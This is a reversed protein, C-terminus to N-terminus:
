GRQWLKQSSGQGTLMSGGEIYYSVQSASGDEYALSLVKGATNWTGREGPGAASYDSSGEWNGGSDRHTMSASASGKEAFKGDPMFVRTRRTTGSFGGSFYTHSYTWRGVLRPDHQGDGTADPGAAEEPPRDVVGAPPVEGSPAAPTQATPPPGDFLTALSVTSAGGTFMGKLADGLASLNFVSKLAIMQLEGVLVDEQKVAAEGLLERCFAAAEALQGAVLAPPTMNALECLRVGVYSAAVLDAAAPASDRPAAALFRELVRQVSPEVIKGTGRSAANSLMAELADITWGPLRAAHKGVYEAMVPNLRAAFIRAMAQADDAVIEAARGKVAKFDAM